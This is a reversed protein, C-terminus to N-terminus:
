FCYYFYTYVMKTFYNMNTLLLNVADSQAVDHIIILCFLLVTTPTAQLSVSLLAVGITVFIFLMCNSFLWKYWMYLWPFLRCFIKKSHFFWRNKKAYFSFREEGKYCYKPMNNLALDNESSPSLSSGLGSWRHSWFRRRREWRWRHHLFVNM